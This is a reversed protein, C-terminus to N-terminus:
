LVQVWTMSLSAYMFCYCLSRFLLNQGLSSPQENGGGDVFEHSSGLPPPSMNSLAVDLSPYLGGHMQSDPSQLFMLLRNSPSSFHHHHHQDLVISHGEEKGGVKDNTLSVPLPQVEELLQEIPGQHLFSFGWLCHMCRRLWQRWSM